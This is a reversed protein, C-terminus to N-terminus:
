KSRDVRVAPAPPPNIQIGQPVDYHIPGRPTDRTVRIPGHPTPIAAHYAWPINAPDLTIAAYGPAVASVGLLHRAVIGVTGSSWGHCMSKPFGHLSWRRFDTVDPEFYESVTPSDDFELQRGICDRMTLIAEARQGCMARASQEYYKFYGTILAPITESTLSRLASRRMAPTVALGAWVALASSHRSPGSEGLRVKDIYTKRYHEEPTPKQWAKGTMNLTHIFGKGPRWFLKSLRRALRQALATYHEADAPKKLFTAIRTAYRLAELYKFQVWSLEEFRGGVPMLAWDVFGMHFFYEQGDRRTLLGSPATQTRAVWALLGRMRAYMEAMGAVGPGHALILQALMAVADFSYGPIGNAWANTDLRLLMGAAPAPDLYVNDTTEQTVRADGYWGLRDRKVGDWYANERACLRATYASAQWVRQMRRDSCQFDGGRGRFAFWAHAAVARLVLKARVDHVAIRIFRFGRPAFRNVHRGPGGMHWQVTPVPHQGQVGWGQAEPASEGFTVYATCRSRAQCQLELEGEVETGLDLVIELRGASDPRIEVPGPARFLDLKRGWATVGAQPPYVAVLAHPYVDIATGNDHAPAGSRGYLPDPSLSKPDYYM